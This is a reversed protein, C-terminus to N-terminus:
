QNVSFRPVYFQNANPNLLLLRGDDGQTLKFILGAFTLEQYESTALLHCDIWDM